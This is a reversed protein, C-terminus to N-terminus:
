CCEERGDSQQLCRRRFTECDDLAQSFFGHGFRKAPDGGAVANSLVGGGSRRGAKGGIVAKIFVGGGFRRAAKEGTVAKSLVGGGYRRGAKEGAMTNSLFRDGARREADGWAVKQELCRRRFTECGEGRGGINCHVASPDSRLTAGPCRKPCSMTAPDGPM